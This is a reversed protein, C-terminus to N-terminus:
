GDRRGLPRIGDRLDTKFIERDVARLAEAYLSVEHGHSADPDHLLNGAGRPQTRTSCLRLLGYPEGLGLPRLGPDVNLPIARQRPQIAVVRLRLFSGDKFLHLYNAQIYRTGFGAIPSTM